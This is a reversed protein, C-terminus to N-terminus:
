GRYLIEEQSRDLVQAKVIVDSRLNKAVFGVVVRSKTHCWVGFAITALV